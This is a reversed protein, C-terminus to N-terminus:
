WTFNGGHQEPEAPRSRRGPSCAPRTCAAKALVGRRVLENELQQDSFSGLGHIPRSPKRDVTLGQQHRRNAVARVTRGLVSAIVDDACGKRYLDRLDAHEAESWHHGNEGRDTGQAPLQLDRRHARVIVLDRRMHLACQEDTHEQGNLRILTNDAETTWPEGAM